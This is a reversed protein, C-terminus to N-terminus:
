QQPPNRKRAKWRKIFFIVGVVPIWIVSYVAIWIAATSIKRLNQILSRVALKIIVQPRFTESPAYPLAIEDTSLHITIRSLKATQELLLQRGKLRDIQSQLNIIERQVRLIDDIKVAQDMIEEFRAKTKVLTALRAEIDEYEDTVDRGSLFESPVKIALSRFYDLTERFTDSPVRLIVTGYPAEEPQSLSSSVMYGGKEETYRIIEDTSQRVNEVLLSLNSERVVLREDVDSVPPAEQRPINFSPAMGKLASPAEMATDPAGVAGFQGGGSSGTSRRSSLSLLQREFFLPIVTGGVLFYAVVILLASALKNNKIWDIIRKM